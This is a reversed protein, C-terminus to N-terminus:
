AHSPMVRHYGQALLGLLAYGLFVMLVVTIWNAVSWSLTTETM